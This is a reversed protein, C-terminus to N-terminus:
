SNNTIEDKEVDLKELEEELSKDQAALEDASQAFVTMSGSADNGSVNVDYEGPEAPFQFLIRGDVDEDYIADGGSAPTITLHFTGKDLVPSVVIVDGDEVTIAKASKSAQDATVNEATVRIGSVEDLPEIGLTGASGCAVLALSLAVAAVASAIKSTNM